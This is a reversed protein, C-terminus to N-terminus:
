SARAAGCFFADRGTPARGALRSLHDPRRGASYAPRAAQSAAAVGVDASAMAAFTAPIAGTAIGGEFRRRM